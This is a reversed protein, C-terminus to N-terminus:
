LNYGKRTIFPRHSGNSNADNSGGHRGSYHPTQVMPSEPEHVSEHGHEPEHEHEPGNYFFDSPPEENNGTM